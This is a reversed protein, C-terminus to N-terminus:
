RFIRKLFSPKVKSGDASPITKLQKEEGILMGLIEGSEEATVPSPSSSGQTSPLPEVDPKRRVRAKLRSWFSPKEIVEEPSVTTPLNDGGMLMGPIEILGHPIAPSTSAVPFPTVSELFKKRRKIERPSIQTVPKKAWERVINTPDKSEGMDLHVYTHTKDSSVNRVIFKNHLLDIYLGTVDRVCVNQVM